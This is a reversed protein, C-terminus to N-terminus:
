WAWAHLSSSHGGARKLAVALRFDVVLNNDPGGGETQDGGAFFSDRARKAFLVEGENTLDEIKESDGASALIDFYNQYTEAALSTRKAERLSAILVNAKSDNPNSTALLLDLQSDCAWTEAVIDTTDFNEGTLCALLAAKAVPLSEEANLSQSLSRLTRIGEAAVSIANCLHEKPNQHIRWSILGRMLHCKFIQRYNLAALQWNRSAHAVALGNSSRQVQTAFFVLSEQPTMNRLDDSASM